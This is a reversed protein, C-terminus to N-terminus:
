WAVTLFPAASDGDKGFVTYGKARLANVLENVVSTRAEGRAYRGILRENVDAGTITIHTEGAGAAREIRENIRDSLELLSIGASIEVAIEAHMLNDKPTPACGKPPFPALRWTPEPLTDHHHQPHSM